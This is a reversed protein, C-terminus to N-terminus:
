YLAAPDLKPVELVSPLPINNFDWFGWELYLHSYAAITNFTQYFTTGHVFAFKDGTLHTFYLCLIM